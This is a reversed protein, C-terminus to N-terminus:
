IDLRLDPVDLNPTRERANANLTVVITQITAV